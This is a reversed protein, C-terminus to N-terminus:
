HHTLRLLAPLGVFTAVPQSMNRRVRALFATGPIPRHRHRPMIATLM